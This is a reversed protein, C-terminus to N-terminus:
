EKNPYGHQWHSGELRPLGDDFKLWSVMSGTWIHDEPTVLEPDDLTAATIDAEEPHTINAYTLTTGCDRCFGRQVDPTSQFYAPTGSTFTFADGAITVWTIFPAGAARRCISCHCHNVGIPEATIEYRIAGCLCGGTLPLKSM